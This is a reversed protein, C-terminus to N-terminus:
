VENHTWRKGYGLPMNLTHFYGHPLTCSFLPKRYSLECIWISIGPPAIILWKRVSGEPQSPIAPFAPLSTVLCWCSQGWGQTLSQRDFRLRLSFSFGSRSSSFVLPHPLQSDASPSYSALALIYFHNRRQGLSLSIKLTFESFSSSWSNFPIRHTTIHGRLLLSLQFLLLFSWTVCAQSLSQRHMCHFCGSLLTWIRLWFVQTWM